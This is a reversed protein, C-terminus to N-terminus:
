NRPGSRGEQGQPRGAPDVVTTEVPGGPPTGALGAVWALAEAEGHLTAAGLNALAKRLGTAKGRTFDRRGFDDGSAPSGAADTEVFGVPVGAGASALVAELAALNGRGFPVPGVLVAGSEEMMRAARAVDGRTFASFPAATVVEAGLEAAARWDTDGANLPGARVRYGAAVLRELLGACSGGGAVVHVVFTGSGTPRTATEGSSRFASLLTVQPCGHVPHRGVLVRGGYVREINAATLVEAPRGEAVLGGGALLFLRDCYIAALNLDHLVVVVTLGGARNLRLLLDLIEVQHNIDLHSTPEDLLLLRPEQALAKALVVRQRDGGALEPLLRGALGLTGTVKMARRVCAADAPQERGLPGAYPIRGLRVTEEATFPFDAPFDQPVVAVTRAVERLSLDRWLDRGDLLIRGGSPALVRSMGKLLTSKGSANPGSLGVVEGPEVEFSVGSLVRRDGYALAVGDLVLGAAAGARRTGQGDMM